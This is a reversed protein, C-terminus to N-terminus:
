QITIVQNANLRRYYLSGRVYFPEQRTIANYVKKPLIEVLRENGVLARLARRGRVDDLAGVAMVENNRRLAAALMVKGFGIVELIDGDKVEPIPINYLLAFDRFRNIAVENMKSNDEAKCERRQLSQEWIGKGFLQGADNYNWDVARLDRLSRAVDIEQEHERMIAKRNLEMMTRVPALHKNIDNATIEGRKAQRVYDRRAKRESADFFGIQADNGFWIPLLEAIKAKNRQLYRKRSREKLVNQYIKRLAKAGCPNQNDVIYDEPFHLARKIGAFPAIMEVEDCNCGHDYIHHRVVGKLTICGYKTQIEECSESVLKPLKKKSWDM